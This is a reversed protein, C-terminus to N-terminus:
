MDEHIAKVYIIKNDGPSYFDDLFAEEFYGCRRYFARAPAYQKRSSTEIYMRRGGQRAILSETEALLKKGIGLGRYDQHVVIWYLDFSAMTCVIPGFCTYGVITIDDPLAAFIFYYGSLDKVLSIQALELAVDKEEPTFIKVSALLHEIAKIDSATIKERYIFSVGNM